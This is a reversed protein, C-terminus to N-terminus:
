KRATSERVILECDLMIKKPSKKGDILSLLIEAAKYGAEKYSFHVTTLNPSVVLDMEYDGFGSISIDEPIKAGIERLARYIGFAINDTAAVFYTSNEEEYIKKVMDYSSTYDFSVKHYKVDVDTNELVSMMGIYRNKVSKDYDGVGFYSIKKHGSDLIFKGVLEGAKLDNHIICHAGKMYQGILVIPIGIDKIAKYHMDTIESAFLIIGDVKHAEMSYLLKIEEQINDSTNSINIRYGEKKLYKDIATISINKAFGIFNPIIIGITKSSVAKLSQAFTNPVYGLEDIVAKIKLATKESVSGNNLYRSVTSKSVGSLKSIDNITAM